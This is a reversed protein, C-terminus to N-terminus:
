SLRRGIYAQYIDDPAGSAAWDKTALDQPSKSSRAGPTTYISMATEKDGASIATYLNYSDVAAKSHDSVDYEPKYNCGSATGAIGLLLAAITFKM